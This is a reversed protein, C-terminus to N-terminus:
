NIQYSGWFYLFKGSVSSLSYNNNSSNRVVIKTDNQNYMPRIDSSGISTIAVSGTYQDTKVTFPLGLIEFANGNSNTPVNVRGWTHVTNGVKTYWGHVGTYTVNPNSPTWTGEEYDNFLESRNATGSGDATDSFDIGFGNTFNVNGSNITFDISQASIQTSEFKVRETGGNVVKVENTGFQIGTDTDDGRTIGPAATTNDGNIRIAM